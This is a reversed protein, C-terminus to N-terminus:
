TNNSADKDGKKNGIRIEITVHKETLKYMKYGNKIGAYKINRKENINIEHATDIYKSILTKFYEKQKLDKEIDM